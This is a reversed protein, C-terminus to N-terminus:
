SNWVGIKSVFIPTQPGVYAGSINFDAFEQAAEEDMGGVMLIEIVKAYDYILRRPEGFTVGLVAADLGDASLIGTDDLGTHGLAPLLNM